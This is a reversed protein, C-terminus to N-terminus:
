ENETDNTSLKWLYESLRAANERTLVQENAYDPNGRLWRWAQRIRYSLPWTGDSPSRRWTALWIQKMDEDWQVSIAEGGCDCPFFRLSDQFERWSQM